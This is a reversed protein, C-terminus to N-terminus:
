FFTMSSHFIAQDYGIYAPMGLNQGKTKTSHGYFRYIDTCMTAAFQRLFIFIM